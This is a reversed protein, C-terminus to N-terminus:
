DFYSRTKWEPINKETYEKELKKVYKNCAHIIKIIEDESRNNVPKFLYSYHCLHQLCHLKGADDGNIYIDYSKYVLHEVDNKFIGVSFRKNKFFFTVECPPHGDATNNQIYTVINDMANRLRCRQVRGESM